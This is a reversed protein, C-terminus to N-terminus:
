RLTSTPAQRSRHRRQPKPHSDRPSPGRIGQPNWGMVLEERCYEALARPYQPAVDLARRMTRDAADLADRPDIDYRKCVALFLWGMAAVLTQPTHNQFANLAEWTAIQIDKYSVNFLQERRM